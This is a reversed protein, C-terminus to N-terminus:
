SSLPAPLHITFTSGQGPSSQVEIRGGHARVISESVFLGLGVGRGPEKTTFFPIFLRRITEDDMGRGRDTVSIRVGAPTSGYSVRITSPVKSADSANLLLNLLVQIIQDEVVKAAAPADPREIEVAFGQSKEHLAFIRHAQDVLLGVDSSGRQESSPRAFSAIDGVISGIRKLHTEMADLREGVEPPPNRLRLVDVIGSLSSLPNGIEHAIGAALLGLDIMKSTHMAQALLRHHETLDRFVWVVKRGEGADVLAHGLRRDSYLTEFEVSAGNFSALRAPVGFDHALGTVSPSKILGPILRCASRNACVVTGDRDLLAVGEPLIELLMLLRTNQQDAWKRAERAHEPIVGFGWSLGFTLLGLAILRATEYGWGRLGPSASGYRCIASPHAPGLHVHSLPIPSADLHTALLLLLLCVPALAALALGVRRSLLASGAIAPLTYALLVPNEIDGTFHLFATLALVDLALSAGIVLRAEHRLAKSAAMALNYLGIVGCVFLAPWPSALLGFGRAAVAVTALLVIAVWRVRVLRQYNRRADEMGSREEASPSVAGVTPRFGPSGESTRLM